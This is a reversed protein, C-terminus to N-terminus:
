RHPRDPRSESMAVANSGDLWSLDREEDSQPTLGLIGSQFEGYSLLVRGDPAIDHIRYAGAPAQRLHLDFYPDLRFAGALYTTELEAFVQEQDTVRYLVLPPGAMRYVLIIFNDPACVARFFSWLAREFEPLGILRLAEALLTEALNPLAKM